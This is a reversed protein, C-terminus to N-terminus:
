NVSITYVGYPLSWQTILLHLLHGVLNSIDLRDWWKYLRGLIFLRSM